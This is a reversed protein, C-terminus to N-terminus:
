KVEGIILDRLPVIGTTSHDPFFVLAVPGAPNAQYELITAKRGKTTHTM